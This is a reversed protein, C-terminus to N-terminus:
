EKNTILMNALKNVKTSNSGKILIENEDKLIKPKYMSVFFIKLWFIAIIVAKKVKAFGNKKPWIPM